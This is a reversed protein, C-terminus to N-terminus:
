LHKWQLAAVASFRVGTYIAFLSARYVTEDKIPYDILRQIEEATLAKRMTEVNSIREVKLTPNEAFYESLFAKEV